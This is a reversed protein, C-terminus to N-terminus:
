LETTKWVPCIPCLSQLSIYTGFVELCKIQKGPRGILSVTGDIAIHKREVELCSMLQIKITGKQSKFIDVSHGLSTGVWIFSFLISSTWIRCM